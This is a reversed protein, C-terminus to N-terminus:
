VVTKWKTEELYQEQMKQECPYTCLHSARLHAVKYSHVDGFFKVTMTYNMRQCSKMIFPQGIVGYVDLM